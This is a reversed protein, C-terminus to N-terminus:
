LLSINFPYYHTVLSVLPSDTRWKLVFSPVPAANGESHHALTHLLNTKNGIIRVEKDHVEIRHALARIHDRRYGNRTRLKRRATDTFSRIM